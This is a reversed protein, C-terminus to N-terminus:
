SVQHPSSRCINASAAKLFCSCLVSCARPPLLSLIVANQIAKQSPCLVITYFAPKFLLCCSSVWRPSAAGDQSGAVSGAADAAARAAAAAADAMRSLALADQSPTQVATVWHQVVAPDLGQKATPQEASLAARSSRGHGQQQRHQRSAADASHGMSSAGPTDEASGQTSCHLTAAAEPVCVSAAEDTQSGSDRQHPQLAIGGATAQHAAELCRATSSPHSSLSTRIRLGLDPLLPAEMRGSCEQQQQEPSDTQTGFSKLLGQLGDRSCPLPGAQVEADTCAGLRQDPAAQPQADSQALGEQEVTLAQSSEPSGAASPQAEEPDVPSRVAPHEPEAELVTQCAASAVEPGAQASASSQGAGKEAPSLCVAGSLEQRLEALAAQLRMLPRLPAPMQSLPPVCAIQQNCIWWM